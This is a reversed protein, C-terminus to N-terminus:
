QLTFDFYWLYQRELVFDWMFVFPLLVLLTHAVVDPRRGLWASARGLRAAFGESEAPLTV